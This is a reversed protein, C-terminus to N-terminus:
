EHPHPLRPLAHLADMRAVSIAEHLWALAHCASQPIQKKCIQSLHCKWQVVVPIVEQQIATNEKEAGRAGQGQAGCTAAPSASPKRRYPPNGRLLLRLL